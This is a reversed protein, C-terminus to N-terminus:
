DVFTRKVFDYIGLGLGKRSVKVRDEDLYKLELDRSRAANWLGLNYLARRVVDVKKSETMVGEKMM